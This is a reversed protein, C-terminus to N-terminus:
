PRKGLEEATIGTNTKYDTITVEAFKSGGRLTRVHFPVKVGGADRFDSYDEEVPMPPGQPGATEYLLKQPLGTAPDFVVRYREDGATVIVTSDDETSVTWGPQRDALLARFYVRAVNGQFQKLAAPNLPGSGQSSAAWGSKGDCFVTIKGRSPITTQQRLFTPAVWTETETAHAGGASPDLQVEASRTYDKVTAIKEAGGAAERARELLKTARAVSAPDTKAAEAKAEPITIDLKTVPGLSSLPKVFQEPNGVAVLTFNETRLYQKAVRLVDARTVESLAKQYQQIFDQPYGFYEYTLVRGLTKAPTDYAFVLSNLATDRATKLEAESVQESRIREVQQQVAQITEVTSVSKTSGTIEFLGPHDFDAGWSASIDYADGMKTRIEQMLRSQFGGGLIDAMIQLAPFDKDRLEGGLTGVTFFTQAIDQKEALFIGPSPKRVVRPFAPVPPQQVTWDAFAKELKAKMEESNFDGRVGLMINAPFFYRHYFDLLNQRTIRNVTDYQIDWGYPTNRGYVIDTFERDMINSADDNRRSIGSRMQTKTLDIKDQRFEPQTLVDHFIALVQDTNEKLASFRVTGSTEGINSEVSAAINELEQDLQDGTKAHTGGIRMVTGTMSALGVEDSPDFLNGTRVLATGNVLPLEHDEMLYVKMGNPLTFREVKPIQIPKLPPYKLQDWTPVASAPKAVASAPRQSPAPRTQAMASLAVAMLITSFRLNNV